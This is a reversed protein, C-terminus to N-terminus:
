AALRWADAPDAPFPVGELITGATIAGWTVPDGPLLPLRRVVVPKPKVDRRIPSNEALQMGMRAAFGVASNKSVGLRRAVEAYSLGQARLARVGARLRASERENM